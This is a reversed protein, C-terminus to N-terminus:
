LGPEASRANLDITSTLGAVPIVTAQYGGLADDGFASITHLDAHLGHFCYSGDPEVTTQVTESSSRAIVIGLNEGPNFALSTIQKQPANVRGCVNAVGTAKAAANAVNPVLATAFALALTTVILSRKM